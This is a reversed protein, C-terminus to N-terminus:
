NGSRTVDGVRIFVCSPPSVPFLKEDKNLFYILTQHCVDNCVHFVLVHFYCQVNLFTFTCFVARRSFYCRCLPRVNPM